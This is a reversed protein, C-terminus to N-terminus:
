VKDMVFLQTENWSRSGRVKHDRVGRIKDVLM